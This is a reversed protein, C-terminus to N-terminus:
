IEDEVELAKEVILKEEGNINMFPNEGYMTRIQYDELHEKSISHKVINWAELESKIQENIQILEDCLKVAEEYRYNEPHKICEKEYQVKSTKYFQIRDKIHEITKNM